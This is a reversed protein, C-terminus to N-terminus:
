FLGCSTRAAPVSYEAQLSRIYAVARPSGTLCVPLCPFPSLVGLSARYAEPIVTATLTSDAARRRFGTMPSGQSPLAAATPAKSGSARGLLGVTICKHQNSMLRIQYVLQKLLYFKLHLFVLILQYHFINVKM